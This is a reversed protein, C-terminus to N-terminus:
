QNVNRDTILDIVTIGDAFEMLKVSSDSSANTCLSYLLLLFYLESYLDVFLIRANQIDM